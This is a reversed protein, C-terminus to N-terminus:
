RALKGKINKPVERLHQNGKLLTVLYSKLSTKIPGPDSYSTM